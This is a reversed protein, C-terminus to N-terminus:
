YSDCTGTFTKCTVLKTGQPTNNDCKGSIRYETLARDMIDPQRQVMNSMSNVLMIDTERHVTVLLIVCVSVTYLRHSLM